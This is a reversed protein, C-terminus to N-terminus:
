HMANSLYASCGAYVLCWSSFVILIRGLRERNSIFYPILLFMTGLIAVRHSDGSIGSVVTLSLAFSFASAALYLYRWKSRSVCFLVSFLLITFSCYASILNVHGITTRFPITLPYPYFGHNHWRWLNFIDIRFFQLVGYLSVLITSGAFLLLHRQKPKYFRAIILFCLAYALFTIFGEYRGNGGFWVISGGFRGNRPGPNFFMSVMASIYAWGIFVLLMWEALAVRRSPENDIYYNKVTFKKNLVTLVIFLLLTVTGTSVWLFLTKDFNITFYRGPTMFAPFVATMMVFFVAVINAILANVAANNKEYLLIRCQEPILRIRNAIANFM